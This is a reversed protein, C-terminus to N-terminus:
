HAPGDAKKGGFDRELAWRVTTELYDLFRPARGADGLAARVNTTDFLPNEVFYPMFVNGGRFIAAGQKTLRLPGLLPRVWTRYVRQDVYRLEPGHTLARIRAVLDEVTSADDGAALHFTRGLTSADRRLAAISDAVWDVPVVDVRCDPRGPFTRWWGRAYIKLPWYLVNFARTEGTRSDGVVIAPRHVAVPLDAARAVMEARCKSREYSNRFGQGEDCEAEYVRGTRTGAIYATSVHDFRRLGPIRAAVALAARTGGLNQALADEEALDFRVAAASHVVSTVGDLADPHLGLAPETVDGRVVQLREGGALGRRLADGREALHAADRARVVARVEVDPDALLRPLLAAGVQGTAGTLLIRDFM